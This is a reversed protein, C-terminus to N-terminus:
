AANWPDIVRLGEIQFHRLNRTALSAGHRLAIAAIMGDATDMPRGLRSAQGMLGGYAEAAAEDFEHIRGALRQRWREAILEWRPSRQLPAVRRIGYFLEALAVTSLHLERGHDVLWEEVIKDPRPKMTDSLVNTDLFIM